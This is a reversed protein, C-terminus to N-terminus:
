WPPPAEIDRHAIPVPAVNFNRILKQRGDFTCASCGLAVTKLSGSPMLFLSKALDQLKCFARSFNRRGRPAVREVPHGLFGELM